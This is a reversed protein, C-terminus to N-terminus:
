PLVSRRKSFYDTKLIEDSITFQNKVYQNINIIEELTYTINENYPVFEQTTAHFEGKNTKWSSNTFIVINEQVSFLDQGMYLRPDYDLDFLNALTPLFDIQYSPMTYKESELSPNYIFFPSRDISLGELRNYEDTHKNILSYDMRFPHHDAYLVFITDEMLNDQEFLEFMRALGKDFDMAKSMYRKISMNADPMVQNIESLYRNGLTSDQDYPFHMSATIIFSMFPETQNSIKKYAEEFLNLDSPWGLLTQIDLYNSHYFQSGMKEHWETRPYFQDRYSHYSSVEYGKNTFLNFISAAYDNEAYEFPTCVSVSPILSLLGMFESEGTTCSAKVSYNNEFFWGEQQMMYLTPTLQPDIALYDMAEVMIYVLNKDKFMGTMENKPPVDKALLYEDIQKIRQDEELDKLGTWLSTKVHRTFDPESPTIPDPDIPDTPDIIVPDDGNDFVVMWLDRLGFRNVGLEQVALYAQTPKRYLEIPTYTKTPNVFLLLSGISIAQLILLLVLSIGIEKWKIHWTPLLLFRTKLALAVLVMPLFYLFYLPNISSIFDLIFETVNGATTKATNASLYYGMYDFFTSQFLVYFSYILLVSFMFFAHIKKSLISTIIAVVLSISSTFLLIRLRSVSFLPFGSYMAFLTEVFLFSLFYIIWYVLIKKNMLEGNSTLCAHILFYLIM